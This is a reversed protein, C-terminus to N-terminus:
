YVMRSDSMLLGWGVGWVWGASIIGVAALLRQLYGAVQKDVTSQL